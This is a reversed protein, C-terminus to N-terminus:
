KQFGAKEYYEVVQDEELKLSGDEGIKCIQPQLIGGKGNGQAFSRFTPTLKGIAENLWCPPSRTVM